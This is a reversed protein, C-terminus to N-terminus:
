SQTLYLVLNYILHSDTDFLVLELLNFRYFTQLFVDFLLPHLLSLLRPLQLKLNLKLLLQHIFLIM